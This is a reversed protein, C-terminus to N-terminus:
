ALVAQRLVVGGYSLVQEMGPDTRRLVFNYSGAPLTRTNAADIIVNVLGAPGNVITVGAASVKTILAETSRRRYFTWEFQWGTIDAIPPPVLKLPNQAEVTFQLIKDEGTFWNDAEEVPSEVAM